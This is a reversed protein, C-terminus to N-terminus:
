QFFGCASTSVHLWGGSGPPGTISEATLRHRVVVCQGRSMVFIEPGIHYGEADESLNRFRVASNAQLIDGRSINEYRRPGHKILFLQGDKTLDDEPGTEYYVAGSIGYLYGYGLKIYSAVGPVAHGVAVTVAVAGALSVFTNSIEVLRTWM